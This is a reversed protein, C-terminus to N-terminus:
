CDQFLSPTPPHCRLLCQPEASKRRPSDLQTRFLPRHQKLLFRKKPSDARLYRSQRRPKPLDLIGSQSRLLLPTPSLLKECSVETFRGSIRKAGPAPPGEKCGHTCFKSRRNEPPRPPSAKTY